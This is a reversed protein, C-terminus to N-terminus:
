RSGRVLVAELLLGVFAIGGVIALVVAITLTYSRRDKYEYRSGMLARLQARYDLSAAIIGYIGLAIFALAVFATLGTPHYGPEQSTIAQVIRGIGFGFGILALSTRVWALLTRDAAARNREKALENTTSHGDDRQEM